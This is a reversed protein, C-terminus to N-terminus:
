SREYNEILSDVAEKCGELIEETTWKKDNEMSPFTMVRAIYDSCHAYDWGIWLDFNDGELDKHPKRKDMYTVGGHCYCAIGETMPYGDRIIREELHKPIKIYACPHTIRDIIAITYNKYEGTFLIEQKTDDTYITYMPQKM